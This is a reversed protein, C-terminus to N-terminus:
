APVREAAGCQALPAVDIAVRVRANPVRIAAWRSIRARTRLPLARASCANIVLIHSSADGAAAATDASAAVVIGRLEPYLVGLERALENLRSQAQQLQDLRAQLSKIDREKEEVVLQSRTYLDSLLSSKLQSVDLGNDRAQHLVLRVGGLGQQAMRETLASQHETAIYAGVLTLEITREDPKLAAQTVHSQSSDFEASIFAKARARFVEQQVMRYAFYTSPLLTVVVVASVYRRVRAAMAADVYRTQQVHFARVVVASSCAIFVCNIAFLFFAGGIFSWNAHAIGFGATCLPPMLATAIAVGPIVNSKERRTVGIIGAFGGCLAILVDWITPTTRALLESEASNLPSLLFYLTSTALAIAVAIVLNKLSRRILAIDLVGVGYGVGLIPGMLPSILMAGIVVATSNVNLGVSAIVIAFMLVWLNTGRMEVGSRLERDITDDAAKDELLSVRKRLAAWLWTRSRPNVDM